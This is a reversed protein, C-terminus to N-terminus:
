PNRRVREPGSAKPLRCRAQDRLGSLFARVECALPGHEFARLDCLTRRAAQLACLLQVRAAEHAADLSLKGAEQLLVALEHALRMARFADIMDRATEASDRWSRGAFMQTVRQGAGLCDYRVCGGFGHAARVGYITCGGCASLHRCPEGAAKDFAFLSSRDFALAVCCLADCHACDARLAPDNM